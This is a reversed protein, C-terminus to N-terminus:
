VGAYLGVYESQHGVRYEQSGCRGFGRDESRIFRRVGSERKMTRSPELPTSLYRSRLESSVVVVNRGEVSHGDAIHNLEVAHLLARKYLLHREGGDNAAKSFAERLFEGHHCETSAEGGGVCVLCSGALEIRETATSGCSWMSLRVDRLCAGNRHKQWVAWESVVDM